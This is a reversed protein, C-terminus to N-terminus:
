ESETTNKIKREYGISKKATALRSINIQDSSTYCHFIKAITKTKDSQRQKHHLLNSWSFM